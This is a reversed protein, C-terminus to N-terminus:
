QLAELQKQLKVAKRKMRLAKRNSRWETFRVWLSRNKCGKCCECDQKVPEGAFEMSRMQPMEKGAILTNRYEPWRQTIRNLRTQCGKVSRSLHKAVAEREGSDSSWNRVLYMDDKPSWKMRSNAHLKPKALEKKMKEVEKKLDVKTVRKRVGMQKLKSKIANFTRDEKDPQVRNYHNNFLVTILEVTVPRGDDLKTEMCKRLYKEEDATWRKGMNDCM